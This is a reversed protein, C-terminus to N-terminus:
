SGECGLLVELTVLTDSQAKECSAPCLILRAPADNDDYHWGHGDKCTAASDTRPLAIPTPQTSSSYDLRVEDPDALGTEGEPVNFQCESVARQIQQLADVFARPDGNGVDYYHCSSAGQACYSSHPEAGGAQAIADLVTFDAGDMGIVFTRQGSEDLHERVIDALADANPNCGNPEGDAVFVGVMARGTRAHATTYSVLGKLAAEIPTTTGLPGQADLAEVLAARHKPLEGLAVEPVADDGGECCDGGACCNQEDPYVVWGCDGHPFFGLAVGMGNSTPAEFFGALANIAYCWRAETTDGVACDPITDQPLKMTVSRDLLLYMDVAVPEAPAVGTACATDRSLAVDEPPEYVFTVDPIGADRLKGGSGQGAAGNRGGVAGVGGIGGAGAQGAQGDGQPEENRATCAWLVLTACGLVARSRM